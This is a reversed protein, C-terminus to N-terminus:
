IRGSVGGAFRSCSGGLKSGAEMGSRVQCWMGGCKKTVAGAVVGVAGVSRARCTGEGAIRRDCDRGCVGRSWVGWCVKGTVM